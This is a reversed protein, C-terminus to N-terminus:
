SVDATSMQRELSPPEAPTSQTVWRGAHARVWEGEDTGARKIYPSVCQTFGHRRAWDESEDLCFGCDYWVDIDRTSHATCFLTQSRALALSVVRAQLNAGTVDRTTMALRLRSQAEEYSAVFAREEAEVRWNWYDLLQETCGGGMEQPRLYEGGLFPRVTTQM